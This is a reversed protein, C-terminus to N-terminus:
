FYVLDGVKEYCRAVVLYLELWKSEPLILLNNPIPSVSKSKKEKFFFNKFLHLVDRVTRMYLYYVLALCYYIAKVM